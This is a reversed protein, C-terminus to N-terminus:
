YDEEYASIKIPEQYIFGIEYETMYGRKSSAEFIAEIAAEHREYTATGVYRNCPMTDSLPIFM